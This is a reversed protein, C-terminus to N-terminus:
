PRELRGTRSLDSGWPPTGEDNQAGGRGGKHPSRLAQNSAGCAEPNGENPAEGRAVEPSSASCVRKSWPMPLPKGWTPTPNGRPIRLLGVKAQVTRPPLGAESTLSPGTKHQTWQYHPRPPNLPYLDSVMPTPQQAHNQDPSKKKHNPWYAKGLQKGGLRM